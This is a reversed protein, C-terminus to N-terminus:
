NSSRSYMWSKHLGLEASHPPLLMESKCRGRLLCLSLMQSFRTQSFGSRLIQGKLTFPVTADASLEREARRRDNRKLEDDGHSRVPGNLLLPASHNPRDPHRPYRRDTSRRRTPHRELDPQLPRQVWICLLVSQKKIM